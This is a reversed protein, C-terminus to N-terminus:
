SIMKSHGLFNQEMMILLRGLDTNKIIKLIERSARVMVIITYEMVMRLGM